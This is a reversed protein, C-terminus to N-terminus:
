RVIASKFFKEQFDTVARIEADALYAGDPVMVLKDDDDLRHIVAVCENSILL